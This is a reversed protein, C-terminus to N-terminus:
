GRSVAEITAEIAQTPCILVAAACATVEAETAPQRVLRVRRVVAFVGPALIACSGCGLCREPEVAYGIPMSGAGDRPMGHLLHVAKGAIAVDNGDGADDRRRAKV